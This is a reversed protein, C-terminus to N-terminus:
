GRIWWVIGVGIFMAIIGFNRLAADSMDPLQRAVNRVVGPFAAYALGEIVLFLGFAAGLDEV